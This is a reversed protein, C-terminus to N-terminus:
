QALEHVSELHEQVGHKPWFEDEHGCQSLQVGGPSPPLGPSLSPMQVRSKTVAEKGIHTAHVQGKAVAVACATRREWYVALLQQIEYLMLM